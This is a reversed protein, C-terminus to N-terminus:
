YGYVKLAVAAALLINAGIAIYLYIQNQDAKEQNNKLLARFRALNNELQEDMKDIRDSLAKTQGKVDKKLAKMQTSLSEVETKIDYDGIKKVISTGQEVFTNINNVVSEGTKIVSDAKVKTSELLEVASKMKALEESITIITKEAELIKDVKAM